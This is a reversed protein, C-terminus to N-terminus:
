PINRAINFTEAYKCRHKDCSRLKYDTDDAFSNIRKDELNKMAVHKSLVYKKCIQMLFSKNKTFSEIKTDFEDNDRIFYKQNLHM